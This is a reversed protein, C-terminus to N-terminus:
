LSPTVPELGTGGMKLWGAAAGQRGRGRAEIRDRARLGGLAADIAREMGLRRLVPKRVPPGNNVFLPGYFEGGKAAPDTAARLQSCRATAPPCAPRAPSATSSASRSRRRRDRRRQGGAARHQLARPARDPEGRARRRRPAQSGARARLPLEGAQGPRLRALARLARRLHPNDPDVARGMHHATSTVTVIRAADARLLAPM